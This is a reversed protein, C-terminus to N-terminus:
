KEKGASEQGRPLAADLEAALLEVEAKVWISAAATGVQAARAKTSAEKAANANGLRHEALALFFWDHFVGGSSVFSMGDRLAKAAEKFRGARVLLAGRTNMFQHRAQRISEQQAPNANALEDLRALAEDIWALPRAWDDTANHGLAFVMAANNADAPSVRANSAQLKKVIDGCVARYGASDGAKLNAVAQIYRLQFPFSSSSALRNLWASARKWDGAGAARNVAQFIVADDAGRRMAEDLDAMARGDDRWQSRLLYLTWDDPTLTIALDLAWIATARRESAEDRTAAVRLWDALVQPSKVLGRSAAYAADAEKLRGASALVRGRRAPIAWDNPRLKALRSLHWEAGDPDGDQEADAARAEHWDADATPATLATSEAGVLSARLSQWEEPPIFDLGHADDLRLGTMLAVRDALSGLDQEAVPEPVPWRRSMGDSAVCCCTKGDAAFAVSVIQGILVAPPGIPKRAAVDWLQASGSQHGTLLFAGDHSFALDHVRDHPFPLLGNPLPALTDGDLLRVGRLEAAAVVRGDPSFRNVGRGDLAREASIRGTPVDILRLSGDDDRAMLVQGDPRFATYDVRTHPLFPFPVEGTKVGSQLDWLCVKPAKSWDGTKFSALHRGNPSIAVGLVIDDHQLPPRTEKGTRWDWLRVFGAPGYDGAALTQGDPSFAVAAVWNTHQLPPGAPRGTASDWVRAVGNRDGTAFHRGDPTFTVDMVKGGDLGAPQRMLGTTLDVVQPYLEEMSFMSAYLVARAGEGDIKGLEYPAKLVAQRDREAGTLHPRNLSRPMRWLRSQTRDAVSSLALRGDPTWEVHGWAVSWAPHAFREGSPRPPWAGIDYVRGDMRSVVARGDPTALGFARLSSSVGSDLRGPSAMSWRHILGDQAILGMQMGHTFVLGHGVKSRWPLRGLRVPPETGELRFALGDFPQEAGQLLKKSRVSEDDDPNPIQNAWFVVMQGDLSLGLIGGWKESNVVVQRVIRGNSTDWVLISGTRWMRERLANAAPGTDRPHLSNVSAVLRRGDPTLLMREVPGTATPIDPGLVAGSTVDIRRITEPNVEGSSFKSSAVWLSRGDAAFLMKGVGDAFKIPPRTPRGDITRFIQVETNNIALAALAGDPSLVSMPGSVVGPWIQELAPTTEAWATLNRRIARELPATQPDGSPLTQLARVFLHLARAPEGAHADEMARDFLLGAAQLASTNRAHLADGRAERANKAALAEKLRLRNLYGATALSAVTVVVLVAALVGALAAIGPHHRAWRVCRELQTQRRAQIPEDDLFRQLDAALEESTSYRQAPEREIAKQVITVLDRPVGKRVKDLPAPEGTTVQKILQNRDRESFAPRMAILEYLTLGLSYVDSRADSKGEFTEPPMYRLTGLLDGTHTLDEAEPGTVKALGFDTVWVTGRLDLLLNSPKVDRHLIGQKHAYEIAEAAQRGINAVSQWYTLKKLTARRGAGSSAALSIASSSIDFSDALRASSSETFPSGNTLPMQGGVHALTAELNPTPSPSGDSALDETAAFSGTMLSRAVDAASVDRHPMQVETANAPRTPSASGDAQLRNLEGLVADLGLGQIFQMVYFPVGDHEGVGFVPVINTHHLKAAAKAERAFRRKQKEDHLAHSPLLKLAVHRGLSVQEAEYVVGMGGHGIERIIRFDGMQKVTTVVPKSAGEDLSDDAIAINELMAMAPFVQRIEAALEPHRDMYEKLSPRQGMRCRSLFEEALELVLESRSEPSDM